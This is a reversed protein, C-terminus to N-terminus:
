TSSFSAGQKKTELDQPIDEAASPGAKQDKIREIMICLIDETIKVEQLTRQM